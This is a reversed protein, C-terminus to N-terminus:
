DKAAARAMVESLPATWIEDRHARLYDLLQRHADATVSLHDGGVGHFVIVGTGGRRVVGKVWAIMEASGTGDFGIYSVQPPMFRTHRIFSATGAQHLPALYDKGGALSQDCPPAFAHIAKGDLAQLLSEMTRIEALLVEVSYSQSTYQAPMEYTGRACPHNVTHNALEHGAAAAARWRPVEKGIQNGSLFFTGKLEVADLQPIAIDLQSRASDDYTLAIAAKRGEPWPSPAPDAGGVSAHLCILLAAIKKM